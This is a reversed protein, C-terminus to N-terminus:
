LLIEKIKNVVLSLNQDFNGNTHMIIDFGLTQGIEDAQDRKTPYGYSDDPVGYLTNENLSFCYHRFLGPAGASLFRQIDIPRDSEKIKAFFGSYRIGSTSKLGLSCFHVETSINARSLIDVLAAAVTMTRATLDADAASPIDCAVAIKVSKKNPKASIAQWYEPEGSMYKDINLEGGDETFKKKRKKKVALMELDLLEPHKKILSEREEDVKNLLLDPVSGTNLCSMTVEKGKFLNGYVWSENSQFQPKEFIGLETNKNVYRILHAVSEFFLFQDKEGDRSYIESVPNLVTKKNKQYPIKVIEM